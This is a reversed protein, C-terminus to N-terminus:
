KRETRIIRVSLFYHKLTHRYKSYVEEKSSDFVKSWAINKLDLNYDFNKMTKDFIKVM